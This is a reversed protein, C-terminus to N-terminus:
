AERDIQEFLELYRSTLKDWTYTDKVKQISAESRKIKDPANLNYFHLIANKLAAVSNKQILYGNTPDVLEATAGVDSVIVPMGFSMAELVVTPMGEFLTPFVFIDQTKYLATLQLDDVFGLYSVNSFCANTSYHNFLPGKGGINFELRDAYGEVNLQKVAEILIHIGKNHAFRGMFLLKLKEADYSRKTVQEPFVVGNPIEVIKQHDGNVNNKLITTLKGGLSVVCRAQGFLYNFIFRFPMGKLKDKLEIAQYPELGHPHVILKRAIKKINYWVALGQSYIVHNPHNEIVEYVRKSYLYCERLYNKDTALPTIKIETIGLAPEFITQEHPHIVVLDVRGSKTLYEILLRSHRQMGGVQFPFIGDTCFIVKLKNM